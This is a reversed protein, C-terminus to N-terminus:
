KNLVFREIAKAVGDHDNDATQYKAVAKIENSANGMAVSYKVYQMMTKDNGQDGICMMEDSSIGLQQSLTALGFGKSIGARSVEVFREGTFTYYLGDAFFSSLGGGNLNIMMKQLTQHSGILSYKMVPVDKMADVPQYYIPQHVRHAIQVVEPIILSHTTYIKDLSEVQSDLHYFRSLFELKLYDEYPIETTSIVTENTTMILGGAYCIAYQEDSHDLGLQEELFEIGSYPRGTTLVVKIGRSSAEKVTKAVRITLEEDSNILTGDIDIAILKIAM